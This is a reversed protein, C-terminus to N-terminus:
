VKIDFNQETDNKLNQGSHLSNWCEMFANNYETCLMDLCQRETSNWVSNWGTSSSYHGILEGNADKVEIFKSGDPSLQGNVSNGDDLEGNIYLLYDWITGTRQSKNMMQFSQEMKQEALDFSKKRDPAVKERCKHLFEVYESSGRINNKADKYAIERMKKLTEDNVASKIDKKRQNKNTGKINDLKQMNNGFIASSINMYCGEKM